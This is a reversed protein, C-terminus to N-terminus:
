QIQRNSVTSYVGLKQRSYQMSKAIKYITIINLIVLMGAIIIRISVDYITM